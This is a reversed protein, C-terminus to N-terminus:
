ISWKIHVMPLFILFDQECSEFRGNLARGCAGVTLTAARGVWRLDERGAILCTHDCGTICCTTAQHRRSPHGVSLTCAMPVSCWWSTIGAQHQRSCSNYAPKRINIKPQTAIISSLVVPLFLVLLHNGICLLQDKNEFLYSNTIGRGMPVCCVRRM